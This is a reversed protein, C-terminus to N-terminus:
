FFSTHSFSTMVKSVLEDTMRSGTQVLSGTQTVCSAGFWVLELWDLCSICGVDFLYFFGEEFVLFIARGKGECGDGRGHSVDKDVEKRIEM